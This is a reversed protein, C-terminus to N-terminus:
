FDNKREGKIEINDINKLPKNSIHKKILDLLNYIGYIALSVLIWLGLIQCIQALSLDISRYKRTHFGFNLLVALIFGPIVSFIINNNKINKDSM